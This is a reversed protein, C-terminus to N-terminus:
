HLDDSKCDFNMMRKLRSVQTDAYIEPLRGALTHLFPVIHEYALATLVTMMKSLFNMMELVFNMMELVFNMM